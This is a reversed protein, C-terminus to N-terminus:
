DDAPFTWFPMGSMVRYLWTPLYHLRTPYLKMGDATKFSLASPRPGAPSLATVPYYIDGLKIQLPAFCRM